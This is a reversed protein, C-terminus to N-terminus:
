HLATITVIKSHCKARKGLYRLLERTAANTSDCVLSSSSQSDKGLESYQSGKSIPTLELFSEDLCYEM